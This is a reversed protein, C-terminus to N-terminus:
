HRGKPPASGMRLVGAAILKSIKASINADRLYDQIRSPDRQMEGLVLQMYSDGLIAQIEPDAMARKAVDEDGEGSAVEQIKYLTKQRGERCEEHNPDVKMGDEYAQLAKHYQKTFFYAHGKRAYAKVFDPKLELCKECDQLAENYACLKLYAAARNSYATHEMPNRKIAETYAAVANPYDQAKFFNNGEEKKQAAIEPDIYAEIDLKKKEAECDNLKKLTDPNRHELLAKKFLAIAEDHRRTRWRCMGQRTILKGVVEYSAKNERAHELASECEQFCVDYEGKEFYVATCNVRYTTNNPEHDIALKYQELAEDFRKASYLKNGEEKYRLGPSSSQTPKPEPKKAEAREHTPEGPREDEAHATSPSGAETPIQIGSLELFTEMMRKDHMLTQFTSPNSIVSNLLTVYDPQLLYKSLRPSQQVRLFTNPGFIKSFPSEKPQAMEKEVAAIGDQLASMTPDFEQGKKYAEIADKYRKLGHLAAGLRAYGKAWSPNLSV